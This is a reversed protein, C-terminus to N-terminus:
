FGLERKLQDLSREDIYNGTCIVEPPRIRDPRAAKVAAKVPEHSAQDCIILDAAKAIARLKQTDTPNSTVMLLDDGRFSHLVVEAARLVGSSICVLGLYSNPPLAQVRKFEEGYNTIDIAFVRVAYPAAIKQVPGLFYRSTVITGALTKQELIQHLDELPVVQIPLALSQQLEQAMLEGAGIDVQPACVLVQASCRLRWDIEALFLQRAQNLSCGQSLLQNLSEQVIQYAKPNDTLPGRSNALASNHPSDCVYIGSGARAEVLGQEELQHYVKSITNRHLGTRMALDRTSPLRYGPPYQRSAIAFSIQNFLQLSAPIESDPQIHFQM